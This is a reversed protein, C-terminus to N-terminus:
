FSRNFLWDIYDAPYNATVEDLLALSDASLVGRWQGSAGKNFFRANDKWMKFNTDPATRDAVPDALFVDAAGIRKDRTQELRTTNGRQDEPTGRTAALRRESPQDRALAAM